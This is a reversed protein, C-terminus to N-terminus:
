FSWGVFFAQPLIITFIHPNAPLPFWHQQWDWGWWAKGPSKRDHETPGVLLVWQLRTASYSRDLTGHNLPLCHFSPPASPTVRFSCRNLCSGYPFKIRGQPLVMKRERWQTWLICLDLTPPTPPVPSSVCSSDWLGKCIQWQCSHMSPPRGEVGSGALEARILFYQFCHFLHAMIGRSQLQGKHQELVLIYLGGEGYPAKGKSQSATGASDPAPQSGPM